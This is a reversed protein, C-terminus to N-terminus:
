EASIVIHVEALQNERFFQITYVGPHLGSTDIRTLMNSIEGFRVTKGDIQNLRFTDVQSNRVQFSLTNMFPNPFVQVDMLDMDEVAEPVSCLEVSVDDIFYYAAESWSPDSGTTSQLICSDNPLLNGITLFREGGLATYEGQILTWNLTDCLPWSYDISFPVNFECYSELNILSDNSFSAGICNSCYKSSNALSAYFEVCYTYGGRLTDILQVEVYERICGEEYQIYLGAYANGSHPYQWEGLLLLNPDYIFDINCNDSDITSYMDPSSGTPNFWHTAPFWIPSSYASDCNYDEFSPNPVLNQACYDQIIFGCCLLLHGRLLSTNKFSLDPM